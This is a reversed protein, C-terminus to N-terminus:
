FPPISRVRSTRYYRDDHGVETCPSSGKRGRAAGDWVCGELVSSWVLIREELNPGYAEVTRSDAAGALEAPSPAEM